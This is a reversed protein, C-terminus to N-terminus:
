KYRVFGRDTFDLGFWVFGKKDPPPPHDAEEYIEREEPTLRRGTEGFFVCKKTPEVQVLGDDAVRAEGQVLYALAGRCIGQVLQNLSIGAEEAAAKMEAHLDADFRVQFATKDDATRTQKKTAKKKAM